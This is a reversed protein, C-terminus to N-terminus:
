NHLSQNCYNKKITFDSQTWTILQLKVNSSESNLIRNIEKNIDIDFKNLTENNIILYNYTM